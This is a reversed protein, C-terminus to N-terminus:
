FVGEFGFKCIWFKPFGLCTELFILQIFSAFHIFIIQKAIIVRHYPSPSQIRSDNQDSLQNM